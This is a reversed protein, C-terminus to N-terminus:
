ISRVCAACAVGSVPLMPNDARQVRCVRDNVKIRHLDNITCWGPYQSRFPKGDLEYEIEDSM